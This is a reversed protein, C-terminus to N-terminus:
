KPTALEERLADALIETFEVIRDSEIHSGDVSVFGQMDPYDDSHLFGANLTGEMSAWFIHRPYMVGELASVQEGSPLRLFIVNSGKSRLQEVLVHFYNLTAMWEDREYPASHELYLQMMGIEDAEVPMKAYDMLVVRDALTTKQDSEPFEGDAILAPIVRTLRADGSLFALRGQFWLRLSQEMAESRQQGQYYDLWQRQRGNDVRPQLRNFTFPPAISYLITGRFRPDVALNELLALASTGEVALQVVPRGLEESLTEVDIGRQARSAGLIVIANEDLSNLRHRNDAWLSRNDQYEPGLDASRLLMEWGSVVVLTVTLALAWVFGWPPSESSSTSSTM